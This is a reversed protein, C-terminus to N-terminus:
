SPVQPFFRIKLAYKLYCIKLSVMGGRGIVLTERTNMVPRPSHLKTSILKHSRAVVEVKVSALLPVRTLNKLKIGWCRSEFLSKFGILSLLFLFGPHYRSPWEAAGLTKNKYFLLFFVLSCLERLYEEARLFFPPPPGDKREGGRNGHCYRHNRPYM